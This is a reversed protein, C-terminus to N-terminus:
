QLVIDHLSWPLLKIAHRVEVAVPHPTLNRVLECSSRNINAVDNTHSEHTHMAM